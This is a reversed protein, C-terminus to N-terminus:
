SSTIQSRNVWIRWRGSSSERPLEILFRQGNRGVIPAELHNGHIQKTPVPVEESGEVTKIEVIKESAILGGHVICRVTAM